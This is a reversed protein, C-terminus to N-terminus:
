APEFQAFHGYMRDIDPKLGTFLEFASVAQFVAMGSGDSVRCGKARAVRVLETELPVYVIESVWHRPAILAPDLALGSYKEMGTPTAHVLGDAEAMAGALDQTAEFRGPGVRGSLNAALMGARDPDVDVVTVRGAGLRFLAYAVAAGAGGAGLLVVKELSAGPLTRGFAEAYGVWDTNHGARRGDNFLVTNVAGIVESEPSLDTLHEIVQQKCPHTVNVGVYGAAELEDLLTPLALPGGPIRDLDFLDYRYHLGQAAGEANQMLPTRSSQISSGILGARVLLGDTQM